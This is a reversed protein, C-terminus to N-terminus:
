KSIQIANMVLFLDSCDGPALALRSAVAPTVLAVLGREAPTTFFADLTFFVVDRDGRTELDCFDVIGLCITTRPM